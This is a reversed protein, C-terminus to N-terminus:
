DDTLVKRLDERYQPDVECIHNNPGMFAEKLFAKERPGVEGRIIRLARRTYVNAVSSDHM